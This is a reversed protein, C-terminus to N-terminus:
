NNNINSSNTKNEVPNKEGTLEILKLEEAAFKIEEMKPSIHISKYLGFVKNAVTKESSVWMKASGYYGLFSIVYFISYIFFSFRYTKFKRSFNLFFTCCGFLCLFILLLYMYFGYASMNGFNPGVLLGISLLSLLNFLLIVLDPLDFKGNDMSLGKKSLM